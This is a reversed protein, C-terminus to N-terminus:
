DTLRVDVQSLLDAKLNDFQSENIELLIGRLIETEERDFLYYEDDNLSMGVFTIVTILKTADSESGYRQRAYSKLSNLAKVTEVPLKSM